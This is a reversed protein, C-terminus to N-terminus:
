DREKTAIKARVMDTFAEVSMAGLDGESRSRVSVNGESQERDRICM